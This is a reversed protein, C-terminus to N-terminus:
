VCSHMAKQTIEGDMRIFHGAAGLDFSAQCCVGDNLCFLGVDLTNMIRPNCCSSLVEAFM